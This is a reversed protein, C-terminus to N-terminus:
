RCRKDRSLDLLLKFYAMKMCCFQIHVWATFHQSDDEVALNEEDAHKMDRDGKFSITQM